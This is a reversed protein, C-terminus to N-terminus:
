AIRVVFKDRGHEGDKEIRDSKSDDGGKLRAANLILLNNIVDNTQLSSRDVEEQFLEGVSTNEGKVLLGYERRHGPLENEPDELFHINRFLQDAGDSTKVISALVQDGDAPAAEYRELGGM